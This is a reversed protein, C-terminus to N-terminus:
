ASEARWDCTHNSLELKIQDIFLRLNVVGIATRGFRVRSVSRVTAGARHYRGPQLSSLSGQGSETGAPVVYNKQLMVRSVITFRENNVTSYFTWM